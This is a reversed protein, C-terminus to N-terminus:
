LIWGDLVSTANFSLLPVYTPVRTGNRGFENATANLLAKSVTSNNSGPFATSFADIIQQPTFHNPGKSAIQTQWFELYTKTYNFKAWAHRELPGSVGSHGPIITTAKLGDILNLTALWATTLDPTRQDALWVHIDDNYVTDGAILTQISPIWFVTEDATDGCVPSLLDIPTDEDGPLAFFTFNYPTPITM